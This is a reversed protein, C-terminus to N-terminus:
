SEQQDKDKHRSMRKDKHREDKQSKTDKQRKQRKTRLQLALAALFEIDFPSWGGSVVDLSHYEVDCGIM